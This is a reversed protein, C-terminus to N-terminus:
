LARREDIQKRHEDHQRNYKRTGKRDGVQSDNYQADKM